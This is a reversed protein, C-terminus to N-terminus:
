ESDDLAFLDQIVSTYLDADDSATKQKIRLTPQHLLKNVLRQSFEAILQQSREDLDPLRHLLQELEQARIADAKSRLNQIMPVAARSAQWRQFAALEETVILSAEPLAAQRIAYHADSTAQLDDLNYLRVGAINGVEPEVNRPLAIDFIILPRLGRIPQVAAVDAVHLVPHPAAVATIVLDARRLAQGLQTYPVVEGGFEAAMTQAHELNHNTVLLKDVSQRVLSSVAGRAMEGTGVVLVTANALDGFIQRSHSAAVTSISLAGAGLATESRVRKGAKIAHQMIASLLASTAHQIRAREYADAVQGLIQPEGIVQSDLGASVDFLHRLGAAGELTVTLPQLMKVGVGSCDGWAQLLTAGAIEDACVAYLETRNCTSLIALEAVGAVQGTAVRTLLADQAAAPLAVRERDEVSANKYSVSLCLFHLSGGQFRENHICILISTNFQNHM